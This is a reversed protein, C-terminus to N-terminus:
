APHRLKGMQVIPIIDPNDHFNFSNIRMSCKLVMLRYRSHRHCSAASGLSVHGELICFDQLYGGETCLLRM